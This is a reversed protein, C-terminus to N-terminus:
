TQDFTVILNALNVGDLSRQCEASV